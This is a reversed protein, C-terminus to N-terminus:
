WAVLMRVADALLAKGEMAKQKAGQQTGYELFPILGIIIVNKTKKLLGFHYM